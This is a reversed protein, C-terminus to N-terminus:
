DRPSPSTYLLCDRDLKICIFHENMVKATAEDEFSEREMVHCWHCTSYGISLLIPKDEEKAKNFAEEGWPYWDVPNHQHQQLYPSAEKALRNTHKHKAPETPKAESSANVAAPEPSEPKAEAAPSSDEAASPQCGVLALTLVFCFPALQLRLRKVAPSQVEAAKPRM